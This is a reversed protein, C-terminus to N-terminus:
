APRSGSARSARRCPDFGARGKKRTEQSQKTREPAARRDDTPFPAHKQASRWLAQLTAAVGGTLALDTRFGRLPYRAFLPDPRHPHGESRAQSQGRAPDLARRLGGGARRRSGQPAAASGLRMADPARHLSRSVAPPLPGGARRAGAGTARDRALERAHPRREGHHPATKARAWCSRPKRSRMPM